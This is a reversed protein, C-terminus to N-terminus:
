PQLPLPPPSPSPPFKWTKERKKQDCRTDITLTCSLALGSCRIPWAYSPIPCIWRFGKLTQIQIIIYKMGERHCQIGTLPSTPLNSQVSTEVTPYVCSHHMCSIFVELPLGGDTHCCVRPRHTAGTSRPVGNHWCVWVSFPLFISKQRNCMSSSSAILM